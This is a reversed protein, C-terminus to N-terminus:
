PEVVSLVARQFDGVTVTNEFLEDALSVGFEEEAIM